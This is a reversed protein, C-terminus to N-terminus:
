GKNEMIGGYIVKGCNAVRSVLEKTKDSRQVNIPKTTTLISYLSLNWGDRLKGWSVYM